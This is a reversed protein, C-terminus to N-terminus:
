DVRWQWTDGTCCAEVAVVRAKQPKKGLIEEEGAGQFVVKSKEM